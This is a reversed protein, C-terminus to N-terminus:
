QKNRNAFNCLYTKGYAGSLEKKLTEEDWQSDSLLAVEKLLKQLLGVRDILSAIQLKNLYPRLAAKLKSQDM